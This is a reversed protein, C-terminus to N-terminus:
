NLGCHQIVIHFVLQSLLASVEKGTLTQTLLKPSLFYIFESSMDVKGVKVKILM